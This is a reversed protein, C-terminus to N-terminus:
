EVNGMLGPGSRWGVVVGMCKCNVVGKRMM